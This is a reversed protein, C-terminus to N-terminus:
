VLSGFKFVFHENIATIVVIFSKPSASVLPPASRIGTRVGTGRVTVGKDKVRKHRSSSIRGSRKKVGVFIKDPIVLKWGTLRTEGQNEAALVTSHRAENIFYSADGHKIVGHTLQRANIM